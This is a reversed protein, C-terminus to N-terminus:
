ENQDFYVRTFGLSFKWDNWADNLTRQIFLSFICMACFVIQNQKIKHICKYQHTSQITFHLWIWLSCRFFFQMMRHLWSFELDIWHRRVTPATCYMCCLLCICEFHITYLSWFCKWLVRYTLISIRSAQTCKNMSNKPFIRQDSYVCSIEM